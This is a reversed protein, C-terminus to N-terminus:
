ELHKFYLLLIFPNTLLYLRFYEHEYQNQDDLNILTVFKFCSFTYIIHKLIYVNPQIMLLKMRQDNKRHCM